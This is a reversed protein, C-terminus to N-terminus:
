RSLSTDAGSAALARRPTPAPETEGSVGRARRRQLDPLVLLSILGNLVVIVTSGEHGLVGVPLPLDVAFVGLILLAIVALSFAINQWVVRKARAALSLAADLRALQDGMLAVDATELAVDTGAGGMAIGVDALALAPADNIGDGIMAVAGYEQRLQAVIDSKDEPLLGAYVREIGIQSAIAEAVRQNDGTLMVAAIGRARLSDIVQPADARCEDALAILGLWQEDRLVGVVTKGAAELASQAERLDPPLPADQRLLSVRGVRVMRGLLQARAFKGTVTAFDEGAAFSLGAERAHAVIAKALPHESRAEVAAASRLLDDKDIGAAPVLDTLAPKGITLTGTKDFAVVKIKALQELSAGGKILVGGRAASAIASIFASPVSIVLACPSAVTMLVMARYFNSEFDVLGLAPPLLIVLSIALLILKAYRQEFRELYRETPAKSEQAEEVLKIIRSLATDAAKRQARVDLSGLTNLTGAFVAGGTSKDVPISEGTIPSEDVASNGGIVQGDIPIREGPAILVTDGIRIEDIRLQRIDAGRKVTAVQPYLRFLSRIASRSRGIAYDQLVNSLSFLFLLTAGEQWEGIVAAGLAALIMLLDVDIEGQRLSSLAARAGYYGGAFYSLLNLALVVEAPAGLREGLLSLIIAALTLAVLRPALWTEAPLRALLSKGPWTERIARASM